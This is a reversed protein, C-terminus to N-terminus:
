RDDLIARSSQFLDNALKAMRMVSFGMVPSLTQVFVYELLADKCSPLFRHRTSSNDSWSTIHSSDQQSVMRTRIGM